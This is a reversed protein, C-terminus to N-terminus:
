DLDDAVCIKGLKIRGEKLCAWFLAQYEQGCNKGLGVKWGPENGQKRERQRM